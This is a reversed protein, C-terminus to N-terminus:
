AEVADSELEPEENELENQKKLRRSLVLRALLMSAEYLVILAGWLGLNTVPSWDPTGFAAIALLAIYVIRWNHRLTKYPVINFILLYFVVVPLEFAIGFVILLLMAMDFFPELQAVLAGIGSGQGILWAFGPQMVVFYCFSLGGLFLVVMAIFTPVVYRREKAKLAPLFFAMMQWIIIPSDIILALYFGARFKMTMAELPGFFNFNTGPPLSARVPRVIFEIFYPSAFYGALTLVLLSVVVIALRRRLEGLHELFPM